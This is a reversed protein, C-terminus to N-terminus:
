VRKKYDLYNQLILIAATQDILKKRKDRRLDGELLSREAAASSLREDWLAVPLRWTKEIAGALEQAQRAEEGWEGSMKRPVGVVVEEIEWEKIVRGIAKLVQKQGVVQITELGQAIIQAEDSIAM